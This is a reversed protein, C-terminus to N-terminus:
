KAKPGPPTTGAGGATEEGPIPRGMDRYINEIVEKNKSAKENTPDNKLAVRYDELAKRYKVRAGANEDTMREYGRTAYAAALAKKDKGKELGAIISDLDPTPTLPANPDGAMGGAFPANLAPAAGTGGPATGAMPAGGTGM